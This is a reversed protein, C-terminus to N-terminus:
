NGPTLPFGRVSPLRSLFLKPGRKPNAQCGNGRVTTRPPYPRNKLLARLLVPDSPLMPTNSATVGYRPVASLPAVGNVVSALGNGLPRRVGRPLEAPNSACTPSLRVIM